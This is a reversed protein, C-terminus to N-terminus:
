SEVLELAMYLVDPEPNHVYASTEVFGLKRYLSVAAPMRKLTDLKMTRYHAQKAFEISTEALARGLGTGKAADEVWLRKMECESETLAKVAVCGLPARTDTSRAIWLNGSPSVYKGPLAALEDDFSQFCLDLGLAENVWTQYRRMLARVDDLDTVQAPQITFTM